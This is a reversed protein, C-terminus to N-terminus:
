RILTVDGKLLEENGFRNTMSLVWFYVGMDAQKGGGNTGDWGEKFRTTYYVQQGWRNFVRFFNVNRYGIGIPRFIDNIGDGNPTFGSPVFVSSQAVVYVGITDNGECGRATVIHVSYSFRGTDPFYGIPNRIAPDNLYTAPTWTYSVGQSAMFQISEGKVIITDESIGTYPFFDEVDVNKTVTDTCGKVSSSVLTVDYNRGRKYSHAPNQDTSTTSDGFDWQWASVPGYTAQSLDAFHIPTNPCLLSDFSFDAKYVPFIKVLRTISDPCTSGRNVVLKVSYVGTDPYTYTPEFDASTDTPDSQVGFEWHYAFGGSSHNLFHVTHSTCEVVYTNFDSSLQPIDAVVAKSCNTVVFQFERKVTNIMVHNRWEHCCVTVVYRGEVNPTGTMLGTTPNIQIRPSGAMPNKASFFASYHVTDGPGPLQPVPKADNPAGGIYAQCFEYSLSDGDPDTASHDYVLPNNICIIQPPYNNFVASNNCVAVTSPPITCTYTAGVAGPNLINVISGNRCCRQYVITYGNPSPPLLYNQKFSVKNLCTPPPNKVCDNKFNVPVRQNTTQTISDFVIRQSTVADFISIFAPNDERIANPDGNICDQYINITVEYTNNGLCRYTLEGGVIHTAKASPAVCAILLFILLSFYYRM